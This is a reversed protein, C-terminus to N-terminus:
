PPFPPLDPQTFTNEAVQIPWKAGPDAVQGGPDAVQNPWKARWSRGSPAGPDAVQVCIRGSPEAVQNPWKFQQIRCSPDAVQGWIRGSAGLNPWKARCSPQAVENPQLTLVGHGEFNSQSPRALSQRSHGPRGAKALGARAIVHVVRSAQNIQVEISLKFNQPFGVEAIQQVGATQLLRRAVFHPAGGRAVLAGNSNNYQNQINKGM